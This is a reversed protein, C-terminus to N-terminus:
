RRRQRAKELLHCLIETGELLRPTHRQILDPHIHFLNGQQAAALRPWRKWDDLWEPRADAMGTAIIAEPNAALVAELSVTPALTELNGFVNVGGCVRIASTIIQSKGVTMLPTNWIEYFVRVPPRSSYTKELAELRTLFRTAAARAATETGALAGYRELERAIDRIQTPQTVFVPLGLARLKAIEGPANGDKWGLVLDPKLKLITELDLRAYAGVRPLARAEPPHDSFEVAGVLRAGAGAAYLLETIHPALSVVRRAPATLRLTEGTDDTLSPVQAHNRTEGPAAEGAMTMALLALSTAIWAAARSKLFSSRAGSGDPNGRRLLGRAKM